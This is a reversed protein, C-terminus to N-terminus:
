QSNVKSYTLPAHAERPGPSSLPLFALPLATSSCRVALLCWCTGCGLVMRLSRTYPQSHAPTHSLSLFSPILPPPFSPPVFHDPYPSDTPPIHLCSESQAVLLENAAAVTRYAMQEVRCQYVGGDSEEVHSITLTSELGNRDYEVRVSTLMVKNHFWTWTLPPSGQARCTLQVSQTVNVTTESFSQTITPLVTHSHSPTLTHPHSPTFIHTHPYLSLICHILIQTGFDIMQVM